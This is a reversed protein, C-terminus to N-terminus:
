DLLDKVQDLNDERHEKYFKNKALSSLKTFEAAVKSITYNSVNVFGELDKYFARHTTLNVPLGEMRAILPEALGTMLYNSLQLLELPACHYILQESYGPTGTGASLSVDHRM